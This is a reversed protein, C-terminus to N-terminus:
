ITYFVEVIYLSKNKLAGGLKGLIEVPFVPPPSDESKKMSYM